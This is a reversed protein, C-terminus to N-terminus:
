GRNCGIPIMWSREPKDAKAYAPVEPFTEGTRKELEEVTVLYRDLRQNTAQALNPIIWALVRDQGRIILKWFADPTEVGHSEVFYDDQPNNGWIVGGIVLLEDIDRYCETIEETRQWAGRNMTAAQPLINTMYNSQRIATESDDLHNAPVLHGRDYRATTHTYAGSSTQRCAAPVADDRYFRSHRKLEGQDRQANYRFKIAGRRNCDLWITFGEYDLRLIGDSTKASATAAPPVPTASSRPKGGHCHREGYPVGWQACNTRCYHCGDAATRGPHAFPANVYAVSVILAILLFLPSFRM